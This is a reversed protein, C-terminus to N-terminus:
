VREWKPFCESFGPSEPFRVKYRSSHFSRGSQGASLLPKKTCCVPTHTHTLHTLHTLEQILWLEVSTLKLM